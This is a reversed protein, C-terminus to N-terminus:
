VSVPMWNREMLNLQEKNSILWREPKFVHADLGFVSTDRHAVWSNIGVITQRSSSILM